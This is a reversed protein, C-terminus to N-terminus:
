VRRLTTQPRVRVVDLQRVDLDGRTYGAAGLEANIWDCHAKLEGAGYAQHGPVSGGGGEVRRTRRCRGQLDADRSSVLDRVRVKRHHEPPRSRRLMEPHLRDM